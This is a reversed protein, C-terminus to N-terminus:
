FMIYHSRHLSSALKGVLEILPSLSRPIRLAELIVAAYLEPKPHRGERIKQFELKKATKYCQLQNACKTLEFTFKDMSLVDPHVIPKYAIDNLLTGPEPRSEQIGDL